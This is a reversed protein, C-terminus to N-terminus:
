KLKFKDERYVQFSGDVGYYQHGSLIDNDGDEMTEYYRRDRIKTVEYVQGEVLHKMIDAKVCVIKDGIVISM